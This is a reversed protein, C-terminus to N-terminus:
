RSIKHAVFPTDAPAELAFSEASRKKLLQKLGSKENKLFRQSHFKYLWVNIIPEASFCVDRCAAGELEIIAGTHRYRGFIVRGIHFARHTKEHRVARIHVIHGRLRGVAFLQHANPGFIV